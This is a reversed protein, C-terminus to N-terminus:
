AYAIRPAGTLTGMGFQYEALLHEAITPSTEGWAAETALAETIDILSLGYFTGIFSTDFRPAMAAGGLLNLAGLTAGSVFVGNKYIEMRGTAPDYYLSLLTPADEAAGSAFSQNRVSSGTGVQMGYTKGDAGSTMYIQCTNGNISLAPGVYAVPMYATSNFGSAPQKLWVSFLFAHTPPIVCVGNDGIKITAAVGTSVIGAKGAANSLGTAGVVLSNPSELLDYLVSIAPIAGDPLPNAGYTDCFDVLTKTGPRWLPHKAALSRGITLSSQSKELISPTRAM